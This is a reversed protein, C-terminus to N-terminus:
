TPVCYVSVNGPFHVLIEDSKDFSIGNQHLEGGVIKRLPSDYEAFFLINISGVLHFNSRRHLLDAIIARDNKSFSNNADDAVIWLMLLTM